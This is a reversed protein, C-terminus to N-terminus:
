CLYNQNSIIFRYGSHHKIYIKKESHNITEQSIWNEYKNDTIKFKHGPGTRTIDIEEMLM